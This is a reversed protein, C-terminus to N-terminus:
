VTANSANRVKSYMESFMGSPIEVPNCKLKKTLYDQVLKTLVVSDAGLPIEFPIGDVKKSDVSFAHNGNQQRGKLLEQIASDADVLESLKVKKHPNEKNIAYVINDNFEINHEKLVSNKFESWKATSEYKNVSEPFIPKVRDFGISLKLQELEEQSNKYKEDFGELPELTAIKRLLDDNKTRLKDLQSKLEDSGKFNKIKDNLELEKKSFADIRSQMSLDSIRELFDALKEGQRREEQIGFKESAYKAAGTLIGEADTNAKGDWGKKLEPIVETSYFGNIKAVQEPTLNNEQIFKESLSM